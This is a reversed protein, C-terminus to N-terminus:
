ILAFWVLIWKTEDNRDPDPTYIGSSNSYAPYAMDMEAM